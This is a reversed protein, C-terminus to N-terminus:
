RDRFSVKIDVKSEVPVGNLTAPQYRWKQVADRATGALLPHGSLVRINRLMGHTDVVAEIVVLGRVKLQQALPPM